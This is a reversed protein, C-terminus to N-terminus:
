TQDEPQGAEDKSSLRAQRRRMMQDRHRRRLETAKAHVEEAQDVAALKLVALGSVVALLVLLVLWYLFGSYLFGSQSPERVPPHSFFTLPSLLLGVLLAVMAVTLLLPVAHQGTPVLLDVHLIRWAKRDQRWILAGVSVAIVGILLSLRL